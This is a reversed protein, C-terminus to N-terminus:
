DVGSEVRWLGLVVPLSFDWAEGRRPHFLHLLRTPIASRTLSLLLQKNDGGVAIDLEGEIGEVMVGIYLLM